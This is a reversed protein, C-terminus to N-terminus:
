LIENKKRRKRERRKPKILGWRNALVALESTGFVIKLMKERIEIKRDAYAVLELNDFRDVFKGFLFDIEVRALEEILKLLEKRQQLAESKKM